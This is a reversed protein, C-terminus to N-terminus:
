QVLKRQQSVHVAQPTLGASPVITSVHMGKLQNPASSPLQLLCSPATHAVLVICSMRRTLVRAAAHPAAALTPALAHRALLLTAQRRQRPAPREPQLRLRRMQARTRRRPRQISLTSPGPRRCRLADKHWSQTRFTAPAACCTPSTACAPHLALRHMRCDPAAIRASAAALQRDHPDRSGACCHPRSPWCETPKMGLSMGKPQQQLRRSGTSGATVTGVRPSYGGQREHARNM